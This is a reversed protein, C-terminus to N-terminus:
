PIHLGWMECEFSVCKWCSTIKWPEMAVCAMNCPSWGLICSSTRFWKCVNERRQVGIIVSRPLVGFSDGIQPSIFAGKSHHLFLCLCMGVLGLLFGLCTNCACFCSTSSLYCLYIGYNHCEQHSFTISAWLLM